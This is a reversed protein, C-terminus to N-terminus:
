LISTGALRYSMRHRSPKDRASFTKRSFVARGSYVCRGGGFPPSSEIVTSGAVACIRGNMTHATSRSQVKSSREYLEKRSRWSRMCWLTHRRRVSTAIPVCSRSVSVGGNRYRASGGLSIM